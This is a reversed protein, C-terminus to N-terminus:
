VSSTPESGVKGSTDARSAAAKRSSSANPRSQARRFRRETMAEPQRRRYFRRPIYTMNDGSKEAVRAQAVTGRRRALSLSPNSHLNFQDARARATRPRGQAPGAE